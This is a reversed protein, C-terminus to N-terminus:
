NCYYQVLLVIGHVMYAIYPTVYIHIILTDEGGGGGGGLGTCHAIFQGREKTQPTHNFYAM